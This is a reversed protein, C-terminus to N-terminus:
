TAAINCCSQWTAMLSQCIRNEIDNSGRQEQVVSKATAIYGLHQVPERVRRPSLKPNM